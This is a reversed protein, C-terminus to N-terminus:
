APRLSEQLKSKPNPTPCCTRCPEARKEALFRLMVSAAGGLAACSETAHFFGANDTWVLLLGDCSEFETTDQRLWGHDDKGAKFRTAALNVCMVSDVGAYGKL